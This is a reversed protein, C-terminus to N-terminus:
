IPREYPESYQRYGVRKFASIMRVNSVSTDCFIRWVRVNQLIRTGQSLLDNAFGLGRYEPLVGIDYITGEELGEKTCEEFIVPLVFGVIDGNENIGFQWWDDQYSFGDNASNLLKEAAEYPEHESVQKQHSADMSSTMVCAVVKILPNDPMTNVSKFTLRQPVEILPKPEEWVFPVKLYTQQSM